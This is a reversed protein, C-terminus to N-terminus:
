KIYHLLIALTVFLIKSTKDILKSSSQSTLPEGMLPIYVYECRAKKCTDSQNRAGPPCQVPHTPLGTTHDRYFCLWLEDLNCNPKCNVIVTNNFREYLYNIGIKEGSYRQIYEYTLSGKRTYEDTINLMIDLYSSINNKFANSCCSGHKTWEHNMFLNRKGLHGPALYKLREQEHEVVEPNVLCQSINEYSLCYEYYDQTFNSFTTNQWPCLNGNVHCVSWDKEVNSCFQPWGQYNGETGFNPWLGHLVLRQSGPQGANTYPSCFYRLFDKTENYIKPCNSPPWYLALVYYTFLSDYVGTLGGNFELASPDDKCFTNGTKFTCKGSTYGCQGITLNSFNCVTETTDNLCWYSPGNFCTYRSDYNGFIFLITTSFVIFSRLITM